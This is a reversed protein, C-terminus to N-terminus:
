RIQEPRTLDAGSWTVPNGYQQAVAQAQGSLEAETGLGHLVTTAGAAALSKLIGRGIGTSSGTVLAVKGRLLTSLSM